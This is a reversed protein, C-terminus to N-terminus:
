QAPEGSEAYAQMDFPIADPKLFPQVREFSCERAVAANMRAIERALIANDSASRSPLSLRERVQELDRLHTDLKEAPEGTLYARMSELHRSTERLDQRERKANSGLDRELEQSWGRWFLFHRRYLDRNWRQIEEVAFRAAPAEAKPPKGKDLKKQVAKKLSACGLAGLALAALAACALLAVSIRRVRSFSKLSTRM